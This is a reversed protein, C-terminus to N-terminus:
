ATQQQEDKTENKIMIAFVVTIFGAVLLIPSIYLSFFGLFENELYMGGFGAGLLLVAVGLLKYNKPGFILSQSSLIKAVRNKRNLKATM